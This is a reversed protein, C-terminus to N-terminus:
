NLEGSLIQALRAAQTAEDGSYIVTLVYKIGTQVAQLSMDIDSAGGMLKQFTALTVDGGNAARDAAVHETDMWLLNFVNSTVMPPGLRFATGDMDAIQQGDFKWVGRWWTPASSTRITVGDSNSILSPM